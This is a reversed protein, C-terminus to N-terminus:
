KPEKLIVTKKLQEIEKIAEEHQEGQDKLEVLLTEIKEIYAEKKNMEIANREIEKKMAIWKALAEGQTINGGIADALLKGIGLDEVKIELAEKLVEIYNKQEENTLILNRLSLEMAEYENGPNQGYSM